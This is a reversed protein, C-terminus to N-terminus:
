KKGDHVNQTPGFSLQIRKGHIVDAKVLDADPLLRMRRRSATVPPADAHNEKLFTQIGGLVFSSLKKNEGNAFSQHFISAAFPFASEPRRRIAATIGNM